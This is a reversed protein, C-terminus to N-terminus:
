RPGTTWTTAPEPLARYLPSKGAIFVRNPEALIEIEYHDRTALLTSDGPEAFCWGEALLVREFNRRIEDISMDSVAADLYIEYGFKEESWDVSGPSRRLPGRDYAIM